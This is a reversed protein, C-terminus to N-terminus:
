AVKYMPSPLPALLICQIVSPSHYLMLMIIEGGAERKPSGISMARPKVYMIQKILTLHFEHIGCSLFTTCPGCISQVGEVGDQIPEKPLGHGLSPSGVLMDYNALFKSALMLSPAGGRLMISKTHSSILPM